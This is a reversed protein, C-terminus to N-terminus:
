NVVSIIFMKKSFIFVFCFFFSKSIDLVNKKELCTQINNILFFHAMVTVAKKLLMFIDDKKIKFITQIGTKFYKYETITKKM